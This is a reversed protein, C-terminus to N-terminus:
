SDISHVETDCMEILIGLAINYAGRRGVCFDTKADEFAELHEKIADYADQVQKNKFKM